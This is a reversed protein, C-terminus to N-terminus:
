LKQEKASRKKVMVADRDLAIRSKISAYGTNIDRGRKEISITVSDTKWQAQINDFVIGIGNVVPINSLSKPKGFKTLFTQYAADFNKADLDFHIEEISGDISLAKLTEHVVFSPRTGTPFIIFVSDDRNVSALENRAAVGEHDQTAWCVEVQRFSYIVGAFEGSKICEPISIPKGVEMGFIVVANANSACIASTLLATLSFKNWGM